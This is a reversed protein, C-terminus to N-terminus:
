TAEGYSRVQQGWLKNCDTHRITIATRSNKGKKKKKNFFVLM